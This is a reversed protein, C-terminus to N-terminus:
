GVQIRSILQDRLKKVAEESMYQRYVPVMLDFLDLLDNGKLVHKTYSVPFEYCRVEMERLYRIAGYNYLRGDVIGSMEFGIFFYDDPSCYKSDYKAVLLVPNPSSIAFLLASAPFYSWYTLHNRKGNILWVTGGSTFFGDEVMQTYNASTGRYIYSGDLSTYLWQRVVDYIESFVYGDFKPKSSLNKEILYRFTDDMLNVINFPLTDDITYYYYFLSYVKQMFYMKSNSDVIVDIPLM